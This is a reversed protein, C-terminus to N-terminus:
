PLPLTAEALPKGGDEPRQRYVVRLTGRGLSVSAPPRLTITVRRLANPTYVAVGNARGVSQEAGGSPIFSVIFDGYVSRNGDRRLELSLVPSQNASPSNQLALNGLSVTAATEGHRVIVPISVGVLATLKIELESETPRPAGPRQAEISTKDKTEAVQQFLLHSRYEGPALGGPKRVLVRVTQAMGPALTVQRPSYRLMADAFQEGPGATDIESFEGTESMRRNVLSIRYTITERSNNILDLQAARQNKEFVIRTPHLMLEALAAGQFLLATLGLLLVGYRKVAVVDALFPRKLSERLSRMLCAASSLLM